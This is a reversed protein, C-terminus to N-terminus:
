RFKRLPFTVEEHFRTRIFEINRGLGVIKNDACYELGLKIRSIYSSNFSDDMLPIGNFGLIKRKHDAQIPPKIWLKIGSNDDIKQEKPWVARYIDQCNECMEGNKSNGCVSCNLNFKHIEVIKEALKGREEGKGYPVYQHSHEIYTGDKRYARICKKTFPDKIEYNGKEWDHGEFIELPLGSFPHYNFIEGEHTVDKHRLGHEHTIHCQHHNSSYVTKKIIPHYGFGDYPVEQHLKAPNLSLWVKEDRVEPEVIVPDHNVLVLGSDHHRERIRPPIDADITHNGDADVIARHRIEKIVRGEANYEVLTPIGKYVFSPDPHFDKM